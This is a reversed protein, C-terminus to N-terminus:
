SALEIAMVSSDSLSSGSFICVNVKMNLLYAMTAVRMTEQIYINYGSGSYYLYGGYSAKKDDIFKLYSYGNYNDSQIASVNLNKKIDYACQLGPYDAYACASGSLLILPLFVYKNWCTMIKM